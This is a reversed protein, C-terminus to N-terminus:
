CGCFGANQEHECQLLRAGGGLQLGYEVAITSAPALEAVRKVLFTRKGGMASM